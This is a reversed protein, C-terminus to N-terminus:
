SASQNLLQRLKITVDKVNIDLSKSTQETIVIYKTHSVIVNTALFVTYM